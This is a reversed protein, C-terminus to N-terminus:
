SSPVLDKSKPKYNVAAHRMWASKNGKAYMDAKEQIISVDSKSAKITIMEAKRDPPNLERLTQNTETSM